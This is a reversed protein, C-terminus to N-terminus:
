EQAMVSSKVPHGNVLAGAIAGVADNSESIVVVYNAMKTQLMLQVTHAMLYTKGSGAPADVAVVTPSLSLLGKRTHILHPPARFLVILGQVLGRGQFPLGLPSGVGLAQINDTVDSPKLQIELNISNNSIPKVPVEM